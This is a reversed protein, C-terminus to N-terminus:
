SFFKTSNCVFYACVYVRVRTTHTHNVSYPVLGERRRRREGLLRGTPERRMFRERSQSKREKDRVTVVLVHRLNPLPKNECNYQGVSACSTKRRLLLTRCTIFLFKAWHRFLARSCNVSVPVFVGRARFSVVFNTKRVEAPLFGLYFSRCSHIWYRIRKRM